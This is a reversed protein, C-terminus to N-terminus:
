ADAECDAQFIPAPALDDDLPFELVPQAIAWIRRFQETVAPQLDPPLALGELAAAAAVYTALDPPAGPSPSSDPTPSNEPNM